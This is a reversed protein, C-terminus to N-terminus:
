TANFANRGNSSKKKRISRADDADTSYLRQLSPGEKQHLLWSYSQREINIIKNEIERKKEIVKPSKGNKKINMYFHLAIYCHPINDHVLFEFMLNLTM